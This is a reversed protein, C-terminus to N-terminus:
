AEPPRGRSSPDDRSVRSAAPPSTSPEDEAPPEDAVFPKDTAPTKNAGPAAASRRLTLALLLLLGSACAAGQSILRWLDDRERSLALTQLAFLAALPLLHRDRLRLYQVLVVVTAAVYIGIV